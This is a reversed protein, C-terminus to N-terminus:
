IVILTLTDHLHRLCLLLKWLTAFQGLHFPDFSSPKKEPWMAEADVFTARFYLIHDDVYVYLSVHVYFIHFVSM